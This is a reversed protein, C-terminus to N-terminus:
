RRGSAFAVGLLWELVLCAESGLGREPPRALLGPRECQCRIATGAGVPSDEALRPNPPSQGNWPPPRGLAAAMIKWALRIPCCRARKAPGFRRGFRALCDALGALRLGDAAGHSL